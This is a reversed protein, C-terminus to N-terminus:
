NSEDELLFKRQMEKLKKNVVSYSIIEQPTTYCVMETNKHWMTTYCPISDPLESINLEGNEYMDVLEYM